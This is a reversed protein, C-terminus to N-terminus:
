LSPVQMQVEPQLTEQGPLVPLQGLAGAGPGLLSQTLLPGQM